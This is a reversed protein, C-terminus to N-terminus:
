LTASSVAAAHREADYQRRVNPDTPAGISVTKCRYCQYLGRQGQTGPIFTPDAQEFAGLYLWRCQSFWCFWRM